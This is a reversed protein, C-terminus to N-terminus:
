ITVLEQIQEDSLQDPQLGDALEVVRVFLRKVLKQSIAEAAAQGASDGDLMLLVEKFHSILLTEQQASLTSGMLAVCAFGAQSVKLCDFFGEVLVVQQGTCRHLNYLVQSKHFGPPLKYRPETGDISRGAYAVLEGQENHIPIVLRGSMSGRGSFYGVGFREATDRAIGRENLYSHTPDIGKLVFGLPQNQEASVAPRPPPAGTSSGAAPHSIAFWETLKVAADRVSCKEMAAVFDLVNGKAQCSFCHFANKSVSVHFANVGDGEHLPCRGRLEEGSQRLWNVQYHALVAPLSVAAKVAKFDIWLKEM